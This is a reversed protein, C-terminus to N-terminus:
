TSCLIRKIIIKLIALYYCHPIQYVIRITHLFKIKNSYTKLFNHIYLFKFYYHHLITWLGFNHENQNEIIELWM